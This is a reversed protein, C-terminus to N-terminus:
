GVCFIRLLLVIKSCDQAYAQMGNDTEYYDPCEPGKCLLPVDKKSIDTKSAFHLRKFIPGLSVTAIQDQYRYGLPLM